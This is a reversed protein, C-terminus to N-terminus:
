LSLVSQGNQEASEAQMSWIWYGLQEWQVIIVLVVIINTIKRCSELMGDPKLINLIEPLVRPLTATDTGRNMLKPALKLQGRHNEKPNEPKRLGELFM